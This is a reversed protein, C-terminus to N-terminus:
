HTVLREPSFLRRVLVCFSDFAKPSFCFAKPSFCFAKPCVFPANQCFAKPCFTKPCFAKRCLAKRCFAKPCFAKPCFAKPCFAKPRLVKPRFAKRCFAKRSFPRRAEEMGQSPHFAKPNLSGKHEHVHRQALRDEPRSMRAKSPRPKPSFCLHM